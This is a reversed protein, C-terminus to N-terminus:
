NNGNVVECNKQIFAATHRQVLQFTRMWEQVMEIFATLKKEAFALQHEKLQELMIINAQLMFLSNQALICNIAETIYEKKKFHANFLFDLLNTTCWIIQSIGGISLAAVVQVNTEKIGDVVKQLDLMVKYGNKSFPYALKEKFGYYAKSAIDTMRLDKSDHYTIIGMLIIGFLIVMFFGFM